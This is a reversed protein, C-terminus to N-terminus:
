PIEKEQRLIQVDRRPRKLEGRDGTTLGDSRGGERREAETVWNGIAQAASSELERSLEEATRGARVLEIM